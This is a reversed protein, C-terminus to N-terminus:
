PLLALLDVGRRVGIALGRGVDQCQALDLGVLVQLLKDMSTNLLSLPGRVGVIQPAGVHVELVPSVLTVGISRVLQHFSALKSSETM